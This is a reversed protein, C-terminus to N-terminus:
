HLRGEFTMVIINFWGVFTIILQIIILRNVLWIIIILSLPDKIGIVTRLINIVLIWIIFRVKQVILLVLLWFILKLFLNKGAVSLSLLPIIIIVILLIILISIRVLIVLIVLLLLVSQVHVQKFLLPQFLLIILAILYIILINM